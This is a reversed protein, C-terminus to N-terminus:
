GSGHAVEFLLIAGQHSDFPLGHNGPMITIAKIGLSAPAGLWAPMMGLLGSRDPMWLASRLPVLAEGRGLARFCEAMVEICDEMSLLRRVDVDNIVRLSM